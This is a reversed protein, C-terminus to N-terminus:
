LLNRYKYYSCGSSLSTPIYIASGKFCTNLYVIRRNFIMATKANAIAEKDTYILGNFNQNGAINPM